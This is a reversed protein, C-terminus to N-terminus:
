PGSASLVHAAIDPAASSRAMLPIQSPRYAAITELMEAKEDSTLQEKYFGLMHQVVDTVKKIPM